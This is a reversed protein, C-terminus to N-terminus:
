RSDRDHALQPSFHRDDRAASRPYPQSGCLEEDSLTGVCEDRATALLFKILGHLCDAAVNSANLAVNGFQHPRDLYDIITRDLYDITPIGSLGPEPPPV